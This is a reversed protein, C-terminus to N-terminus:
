DKEGQGESRAISKQGSCARLLAQVEEKRLGRWQGPQLNGLCLPGIGVRVLRLTPHGVTATMKRVQRNRGEQITLQLWTTPVNKRFRIPVPRPWLDPDSPLVEVFAERTHTGQIVVGHRLRNLAGEDPIREVQALYTKWLKYRPDMIRHSLQGDSTLIMLGESDFDLRGAPYVESLSIFQALTPRGSSDTFSSLVGYPKNFAIYHKSYM